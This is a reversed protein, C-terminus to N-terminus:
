RTAFVDAAKRRRRAGGAEHPPAAAGGADPLPTDRITEGTYRNVLSGEELTSRTRPVAQMSAWVGGKVYRQAAARCMNPFM